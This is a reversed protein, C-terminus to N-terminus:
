SMISIFPLVESLAVLIATTIIAGWTFNALCSVRQIATVRDRATRVLSMGVAAHCLSIVAAVCVIGSGGSPFLADVYRTLAPEVRGELHAMAMRDSAHAMITILFVIPFVFVSQIVISSYGFSSHDTKM